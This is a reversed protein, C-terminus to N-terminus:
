LVLPFLLIEPCSIGLKLNAKNEQPLTLVRNCTLTIM